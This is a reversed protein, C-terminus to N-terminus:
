LTIDEWRQNAESVEGSGTREDRNEKYCVIRLDVMEEVAIRVEMELRKPM